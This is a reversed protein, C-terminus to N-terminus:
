KTTCSEVKIYPFFKHDGPNIKMRYGASKSGLDLKSKLETLNLAYVILTKILEECLRQAYGASSELFNLKVEADEMLTKQLEKFLKKSSNFKVITASIAENAYDVNPVHPCNLSRKYQEFTPLQPVGISLWPKLRLNFYNEFSTLSKSASEMFNTAGIYHYIMLMSKVAEFMLCYAKLKVLTYNRHYRLTKELKPLVHEVLHAHQDRLKQKKEGKLKKLRKPLTHTIFNIKGEIINCIRGLDLELLLQSLYLAYWYILFLEYDKYLELDIGNILLLLMESLKTHFIFLSVALLAEGTTLEDGIGLVFLESELTESNIQLTDWIVLGKNRLQQQRCPNNGYILLNYYITSELDTKLQAIKKQVLLATEVKLSAANIPKLIVTNVGVLSEIAQGVYADLHLLSGLILRDDRIVFLKVIGKVLANYKTSSATIDYRMYNLFQAVNEIQSASSVFEKIQEFTTIYEQKANSADIAYLELPINRNDMDLQIFKSFLGSPVNEGQFNLSSAVEVAQDLFPLNFQSANPVFANLRLGLLSELKLLYGAMNLNTQLVDFDPKELKQTSLWAKATDLEFLVVEIAENQLYNLNMNRTTIDEEEYLVEMAVLLTFGVFRAIAMLFPKLVKHVLGYELSQSDKIQSALRSDVLSCRQLLTGRNSTYNQLLTQVYRCSLITLPLSLNNLWLMYGILLRNMVGIVSDVPQPALPDFSVDDVNVEILGTDLNPNSIEIARTGELLNFLPSQVVKNESLGELSKFLEDTIDVLDEMESLTVISARDRDLMSHAAHVDDSRYYLGKILTWESYIYKSM